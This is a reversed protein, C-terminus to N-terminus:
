RHKATALRLGKSPFTNRLNVSNDFDFVVFALSLVLM